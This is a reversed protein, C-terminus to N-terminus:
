PHYHHYIIKKRPIPLCSGTVAMVAYWTGCGHAMASVQVWSGYGRSDWYCVVAVDGSQRFAACTNEVVTGGRKGKVFIKSLSAAMWWRM